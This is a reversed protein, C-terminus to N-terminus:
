VRDETIVPGALYGFGFFDIVIMVMVEVKSGM